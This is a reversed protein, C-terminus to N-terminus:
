SFDFIAPILNKRSVPPWRYIILFDEAKKKDFFCFILTRPAEIKNCGSAYFRFTHYRQGLKLFV